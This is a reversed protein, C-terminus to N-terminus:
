AVSGLTSELWAKVDAIAEEHWTADHFTQSMVAAGQLRVLLARAITRAEDPTKGAARLQRECWDLAVEFMVKVEDKLELQQKGLEAALSGMPCGYRVVEAGDRLPVEAYRELRARPDPIDREWRELLARFRQARDQVVARLLDDKTRFYFYLNGKPVGSERAIDAFSTANFGRLYILKNATQLIRERNKDGKTGM